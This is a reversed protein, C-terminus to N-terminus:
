PIAVEDIIDSRLAQSGKLSPRPDALRDVGWDREEQGNGHDVGQNFVSVRYSTDSRHEQQQVAKRCGKLTVM